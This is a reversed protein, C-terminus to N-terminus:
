APPEEDLLVVGRARLIEDAQQLANGPLTTPIDFVTKEWGRVHVSFSYGRSNPDLRAALLGFPDLRGFCEQAEPLPHWPGLVLLKQVVGWAIEPHARLAALVRAPTVPRSTPPSSSAWPDFRRSGWRGPAKEVVWERASEAYLVVDVPRALDFPFGDRKPQVMQVVLCVPRIRAIVKDRVSALVQERLWGDRGRDGEVLFIDEPLAWLTDLASLLASSPNIVQHGNEVLHAFLPRAHDGRVLVVGHPLGGGIAEDLRPLGSPIATM